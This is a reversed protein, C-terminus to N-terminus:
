FPAVQELPSHFAAPRLTGNPTSPAPIGHAPERHSPPGQRSIRVIEPFFDGCDQTAAQLAHLAAPQLMRGPTRDAGSRESDPPAAFTEADFDGAGAPAGPPQSRASGAPPPLRLRETGRPMPPKEAEPSRAPQQEHRRRLPRPSLASTAHLAGGAGPEFNSARAVPRPNQYAIRIEIPTEGELHCCDKVRQSDASTCEDVSFSTGM